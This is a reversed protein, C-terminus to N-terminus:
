LDMIGMAGFGVTAQAVVIFAALSFTDTLGNSGNFCGRPFFMPTTRMRFVM